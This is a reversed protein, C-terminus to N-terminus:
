KSGGEDLEKRISSISKIEEVASLGEHHNNLM